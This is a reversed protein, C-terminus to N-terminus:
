PRLKRVVVALGAIRPDVGFVAAAVAEALAELLQFSRGRVVEAVREVVVGYDVTDALRDSAGAPAADFSLDLDIEFPQPREREEPLVGHTAVIRLARIEIRDASM